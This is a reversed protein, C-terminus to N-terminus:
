LYITYSIIIEFSAVDFLDGHHVHFQCIYDSGNPLTTIGGVTEWQDPDISGSFLYSEQSSSVGNTSLNYGLRVNEINNPGLVKIRLFEVVTRYQLSLNFFYSENEKDGISIFDLEGPLGLVQVWSTNFIGGPGTQNIYYTQNNYTNYTGGGYYNNTTPPTGLYLGISFAAFGIGFGGIILTILLLTKAQTSLPATPSAPAKGLSLATKKFDVMVLEGLCKSCMEQDVSFSLQCKPCFRMKQSM